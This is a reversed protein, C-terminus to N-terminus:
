RRVSSRLRGLIIPLLYTRGRCGALGTRSNLVGARSNLIGVRRGEPRCDGRAGDATEAAAAIRRHLQPQTRLGVAEQVSFKHNMLCAEAHCWDFAKHAAVM